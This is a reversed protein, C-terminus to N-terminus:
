NWKQVGVSAAFGDRCEASSCLVETDGTFQSFSPVFVAADFVYLFCVFSVIGSGTSVCFSVFVAKEIITKGCM